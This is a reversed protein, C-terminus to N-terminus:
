FGSTLLKTILYCSVCPACPIFSFGAWTRQGILLADSLLKQCLKVEQSTLECDKAGRNGRTLYTKCIKSVSQFDGSGIKGLIILSHVGLLLTGGSKKWFTKATTCDCELRETVRPNRTLQSLAASSELPEIGHM